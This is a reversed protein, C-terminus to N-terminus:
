CPTSSNWRTKHAGSKAIARLDEAMPVLAALAEPGDGLVGRVMRTPREGAHLLHAMEALRWRTANIPAGACPPWRWDRKLRGSCDTASWHWRSASVRGARGCTRARAQQDRLSHRHRGACAAPSQREGRRAMREAEIWVGGQPWQGAGIRALRHEQRSCALRERANRQGDLDPESSKTSAPRNQRCGWRWFHRASLCRQRFVVLGPRSRYNQGLTDGGGGTAQQIKPAVRAILEPDAGRFGYIAQKPDGVWASTQAIQSLAVFLALQLPSTDQFEDVYVARSGSSWRPPSILTTSCGCPSGSRTSSISRAGNASTTRM